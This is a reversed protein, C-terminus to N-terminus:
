LFFMSPRFLLCFEEITLFISMSYDNLLLLPHFIILPELSLVVIMHVAFIFLDSLFLSRLAKLPGTECRSLIDM